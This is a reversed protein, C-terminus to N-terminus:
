KCNKCLFGTNKTIRRAVMECGRHLWEQCNDCEVMFIGETYPQRCHCFVEIEEVRKYNRHSRTQKLVPFLSLDDHQFCASLHPRLEEQKWTCEHPLFGYCLSTAVAISFLGCDSTGSQRQMDAWWLTFHKSLPMLM